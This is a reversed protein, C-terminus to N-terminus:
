RGARMIKCGQGQLHVLRVGIAYLKDGILGLKRQVQGPSAWGGAKMMDALSHLQGDALLEITLYITEDTAWAKGGPGIIRFGAEQLTVIPLDPEPEAPEPLAPEPATIKAAISALSRVARPDGAKRASNIMVGISNATSDLAEAIEALTLSTTSFLILARERKTVYPQATQPGPDAVVAPGCSSNRPDAETPEASAARAPPPAQSVEGNQAPQDEGQDVVAEDQVTTSTAPEPPEPISPSMCRAIASVIAVQVRALRQARGGPHVMAFIDEIEQAAHLAVEDPHNM